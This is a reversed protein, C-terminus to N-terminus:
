GDVHVKRNVRQKMPISPWLPLVRLDRHRVFPLFDESPVIIRTSIRVMLKEIKDFFKYFPGNLTIKDITVPYIDWHFVVIRRRLLYSIVLSPFRVWIVSHFVVTDCWLLKPIRGIERLLLRSLRVIRKGKLDNQVLLEVSNNISLTSKLKSLLNFFTGTESSNCIILVRHRM